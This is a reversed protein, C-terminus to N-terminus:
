TTIGTVPTESSLSVSVTACNSSTIGNTAVTVGAFAVLLSSLHFLLSSVITSTVLSPTTVPIFFPVAVTVTSVTSPFKLSVHTTVTLQVCLTPCLTGASSDVHKFCPCPAYSTQSSQPSIVEPESANNGKPSWLPPVAM